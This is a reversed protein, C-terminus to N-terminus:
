SNQEGISQQEDAIFGGGEVLIGLDSEGSLVTPPFIKASTSDFPLVVELGIREVDIPVSVGQGMGVVHCQPVESGAQSTTCQKRRSGKKSKIKKQGHFSWPLKRLKSFPLNPPNKIAPQKRTKGAERSRFQFEAVGKGKSLNSAAGGVREHQEGFSEISDVFQAQTLEGIPNVGGVLNSPGPNCPGALPLVGKRTRLLLPGIENTVAKESLDCVENEVHGPGFTGVLLGVGSQGVLGSGLVCDSVASEVGMPGKPIDGDCNVLEEVLKGPNELFTPIDASVDEDNRKGVGLYGDIGKTGDGHREAELLVQCSESVDANSGTESLGDEMALVSAGGASPARSSGDDEDGGLNCRGGGDLWGGIVEVVRIDFRQGQVKVAMYSDVLKREGTLIKIRATDCRKMQKTQEDVEIFRGFKFALAIPSWPVVREFLSCWWGVSEMLEKVEGVKDSWPLIMRYRLACIKLNQFGDMHFQNQISIAEKDDVLYGVYAGGLRSVVEDEVEVEWIVDPKLQAADASVLMNREKKGAESIEETLINKFSKGKHVQSSEVRGEERTVVKGLPPQSNKGLKSLNVRLKFSGVWIDSIRRLLETADRVDRFKVFGFRRGQKHVKNPIYVEGVRTWGTSLVMHALGAAKVLKEKGWVGEREVNERM